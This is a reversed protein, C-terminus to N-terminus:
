IVQIIKSISIYKFLIRIVVMPMVRMTKNFWWINLLWLWCNVMWNSYGKPPWAESVWWLRQSWSEDCCATCLECHGWRKWLGSTWWTPVSWCHSWFIGFSCSQWQDTCFATVLFLVRRRRMTMMTMMMTPGVKTANLDLRPVFPWLSSFRWLFEVANPHLGLLKAHDSLYLNITCCLWSWIECGCHSWSEYQTMNKGDTGFITNGKVAAKVLDSTAAIYSTPNTSVERNTEATWTEDRPRALQRQHHREPPRKASTSIM